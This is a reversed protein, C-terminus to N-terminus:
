HKGKRECLTQQRVILTGVLHLRVQGVGAGVAGECEFTYIGLNCPWYEWSWFWKSSDSGFHRWSHIDTGPTDATYQSMCTGHCVMHLFWWVVFCYCNRLDSPKHKMGTVAAGPEWGCCVTHRSLQPGLVMSTHHTSTLNFIWYTYLSM